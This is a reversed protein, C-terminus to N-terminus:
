GTFRNRSGEGFKGIFFAPCEVRGTLLGTLYFHPRGKAAVIIM